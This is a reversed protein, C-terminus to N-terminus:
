PKAVGSTQFDMRLKSSTIGYGIISVYEGSAVDALPALKGANTSVVFVMGVVVTGGVNCDGATQIILPEGDGANTIAIGGIVTSAAVTSDCRKYENSDSTDKYVADGATVTAGATVTKTTAGSYPRVNAATITIDAM